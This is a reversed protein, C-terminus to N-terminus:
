KLSASEMQDTRVLVLFKDLSILRNLLSKLYLVVNLRNTPLNDSDGSAHEQTIETGWSGPYM